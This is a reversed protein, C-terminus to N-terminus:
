FKLVDQILNRKREKDLLHDSIPFHFHRHILKEYTLEDDNELKWNDRKEVHGIGFVLVLVPKTM